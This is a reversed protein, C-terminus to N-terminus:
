FDPDWDVVMRGGALDVHEVFRGPLFPVLREREGAVVMVDNAGTAMMREVRGLRVGERTFVELGLLDAWYFEGEAPEPLRERSVALPAGVLAAAADRDACSEFRGVLGDRHRRAEALRVPQWRGGRFIEMDRYALLNDAPETYSRLKVWGHIGWVSGVEGLVVRRQDTM